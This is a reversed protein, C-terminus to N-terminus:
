LEEPVHVLRSRIWEGLGKAQPDFRTSAAVGDGLLGRILVNVGHLNPLPYIEVDLEEAEPVLARVRDVTLFRQLWRTREARRDGDRVWLGVNADGGKDGSRAHVFRGLPVRRTVANEAVGSSRRREQSVPAPDRAFSPDPVVEVSGDPLHVTHTVVDRDVYAPRYIGFPTAPGPPATLTFGPYSGLALEVVASTFAKGATAASDDKVM